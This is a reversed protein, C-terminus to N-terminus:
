SLSPLSFIIPLHDSIPLWIDMDGVECKVQMENVFDSSVFAYDIHYSKARDRHLFFTARTEGGQIEANALHYVSRIGIEELERVVDSHNWWRDWEDWRVNSNFDGCIITRGNSLRVKHKQLYKWLQGIYAFNPSNAQKTWVALMIFRRDIRCPLFLELGDDPWEIKELHIGAKAFIGIGKNKTKGHWLHNQAWNQYDTDSRSPDECEQIVLIDAQLSDLIHYKKRFAGNCNWSVIKM